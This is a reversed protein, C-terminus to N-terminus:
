SKTSTAEDLLRAHDLVFDTLDLKIRFSREIPWTAVYTENFFQYLVEARSRDGFLHLCIALASQAPGSGLYGWYFGQSHNRVRRSAAIDLHQDKCWLQYDHGKKRGEISIQQLNM